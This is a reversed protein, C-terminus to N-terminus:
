TAVCRGGFRDTIVLFGFRQYELREWFDSPHLLTSQM